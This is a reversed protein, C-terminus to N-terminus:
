KYVSYSRQINYMSLLLLVIRWYQFSDISMSHTSPLCFMIYFKNKSTISRILFSYIPLIHGLFATKVNEEKEKSEQRSSQITSSRLSFLMLHFLWTHVLMASELSFQHHSRWHSLHRHPHDLLWRHVGSQGPSGVSAACPVGLHRCLICDVLDQLFIWHYYFEPHHTTVDHINISLNHSYISPISPFISWYGEFYFNWPFFYM